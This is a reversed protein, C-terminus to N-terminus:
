YSLSLPSCIFRHKYESGCYKNLWIPSVFRVCPLNNRESCHRWFLPFFLFSENVRRWVRNVGAKHFIGDSVFGEKGVATDLCNSLGRDISCTM